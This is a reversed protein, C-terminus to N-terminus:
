HLMQLFISTCWRMVFRKRKMYRRLWSPSGKFQVRMLGPYHLIEFAEVDVWETTVPLSRACLEQVFKALLTELEPNVASWGHFLTKQKTKNQTAVPHLASWYLINKKSAGFEQQAVM